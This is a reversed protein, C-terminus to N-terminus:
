TGFTVAKRPKRQMKVIVMFVFGVSNIFEMLAQARAMRTFWLSNSIFTCSDYM